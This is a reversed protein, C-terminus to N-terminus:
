HQCCGKPSQCFIEKSFVSKQPIPVLTNSPDAEKTSAEAVNILSGFQM